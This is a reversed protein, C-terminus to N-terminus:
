QIVKSLKKHYLWLSSIFTNSELNDHNANRKVFYVCLTCYHEQERFEKRFICDKGHTTIAQMWYSLKTVTKRTLFSHFINHHHNLKNWSSHVFIFVIKCIVIGRETIIDLTRMSRIGVQSIVDFSFCTKILHFKKTTEKIRANLVWRSTSVHVLFVKCFFLIM